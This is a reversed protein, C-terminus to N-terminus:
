AAAFSQQLYGSLLVLGIAIMLVASARRFVTGDLGVAFGVTAVFLGIAVFSVALGGALAAPGYKHQSAATGIVIPLIPLVCPSLTSLLGSLLAFGLPAFTM